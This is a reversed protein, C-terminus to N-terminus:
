ASRIRQVLDQPSPLGEAIQDRVKEPNIQYPIVVKDEIVKIGEQEKDVLRLTKIVVSGTGAREELPGQDVGVSTIADYEIAEASEPAGPGTRYLKRGEKDISTVAKSKSHINWFAIPSGIFAMLSAVGAIFLYYTLSEDILAGDPMKVIKEALRQSGYILAVSSVALAASAASAKLYANRVASYAPEFKLAQPM